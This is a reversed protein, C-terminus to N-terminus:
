RQLIAYYGGGYGESGNEAPMMGALFKHRKENALAIRAKYNRVLSLPLDLTHSIEEPTMGIKSLSEV